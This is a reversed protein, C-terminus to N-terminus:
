AQGPFIKSVTKGGDTVAHAHGNAHGNMYGNTYENAYGNVGTMQNLHHGNVINVNKNGLVEVNPLLNKVDM